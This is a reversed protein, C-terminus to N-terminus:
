TRDFGILVTACDDDPPFGLATRIHQDTLTSPSVSVVHKISLQERSEELEKFEIPPILFYSPIKPNNRRQPYFVFGDGIPRADQPLMTCGPLVEEGLIRFTNEEVTLVQDDPAGHEDLKEVMYVTPRPPPRFRRDKLIVWMEDKALVSHIGLTSIPLFATHEYRSELEDIEHRMEDAVREAELVGTLRKLFAAIDDM